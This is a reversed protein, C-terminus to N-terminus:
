AVRAWLLPASALGFPVRKFILWGDPIKLVTHGRDAERLPLTYFADTFDIVGMLPLMFDSDFRQGAHEHWAAQM